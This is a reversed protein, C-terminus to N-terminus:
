QKLINGSAAFSGGSDQGTLKITLKGGLKDSKGTATASGGIFDLNLTQVLSGCITGNVNGVRTASDQFNGQLGTNFQALSLSVQITATSGGQKSKLVGFWDGTLNLLTSIGKEASKFAQTFLGVAASAKSTGLGRDFSHQAKQVNKETVCVKGAAEMIKSQATDRVINELADIIWAASAGKKAAAELSSIARKVQEFASVFEPINLLSCSNDVGVLANQLLKLASQPTNPNHIIAQIDDPLDCISIVTPPPLPPGPPADGATL